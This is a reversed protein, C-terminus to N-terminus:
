RYLRKILDSWKTKKGTYYQERTPAEEFSRDKSWLRDIDEMKILKAGIAAALGAGYSTTEIIKPRVINTKSVSAQITLLLDNAAAGGDVNLTEINKGLDKRMASILDDISFAIGELTALAIHARTTDRTLGHITGKADSVWYPSGLGTLFPLFLINEMQNYDTVTNALEEVESSKHIFGLNDRLFQVAAGAIYCSGELAYVTKKSDQYAVTTLLGASSRVIEEGTNLLMFAGTGYTCKMDGTKYGSQGFLAAQQDGLIGTVPIGDPLFDLGRTKGFVGFSPNIQPLTKKDIGFIELLEADWETSELNM